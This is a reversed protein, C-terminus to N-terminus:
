SAAEDGPEAVLLYASAFSSPKASRGIARADIHAALWEFLRELFGAGFRQALVVLAQALVSAPGLPSELSLIRLGASSLLWELGLPTYRYYDSGHFPHMFPVWVVFRGGDRLIRRVERLASAPEVFHELTDNSVVLDVAGSRVALCHADSAIAPAIAPTLDVNVYSYGRAAVHSGFKGKGGGLDLAIGSGPEVRSLLWKVPASM